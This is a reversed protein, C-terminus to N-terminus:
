NRVVEKHASPVSGQEYGGSRLQHRSVSPNALRRVTLSWLFRSDLTVAWQRFERVNILLRHGIFGLFEREIANVEYIPIQSFGAWMGNGLPHDETYKHALILAVVFMRYQSGPGGSPAGTERYRRIFLLALLFAASTVHTRNLLQHLLRRTEQGAYLDATSRWSDDSSADSSPSRTQETKKRDLQMFDDQWILTVIEPLNQAVLYRM